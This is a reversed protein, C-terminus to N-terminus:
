PTARKRPHQAQWRRLKIEQWRLWISTCTGITSVVLYAFVLWLFWVPITLSVSM